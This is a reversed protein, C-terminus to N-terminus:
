WFFGTKRTRRVLADADCVNTADWVDRVGRSWPWMSPIACVSVLIVDNARLGWANPIQGPKRASKSCLGDTWVMDMRRGFRLTFLKAGYRLTKEYGHTKGRDSGFTFSRKLIRTDSRCRYVFYQVVLIPSAVPVRDLSRFRWGTPVSM